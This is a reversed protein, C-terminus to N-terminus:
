ITNIIYMYVTYTYIANYQMISHNLHHIGTCDLAPGLSGQAQPWRQRCVVSRKECLCPWPLPSGIPGMRRPGPATLDAELLFHTPLTVWATVRCVSHSEVEVPWTWWHGSIWSCFWCFSVLCDSTRSPCTTAMIPKWSVRSLKRLQNKRLKM